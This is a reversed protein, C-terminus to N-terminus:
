NLFIDLSYRLYADIPYSYADKPDVWLYEQAEDNLQVEQDNVQVIFDFFIFHRQEWFSPDYIFEQYCLFEHNKVELGTEEAVERKLADVLTEGLEVHGGPITYKGKWKHTKVLLLKGEPNFILAGVTPEPYRKESNM